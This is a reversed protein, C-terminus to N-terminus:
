RCGQSKSTTGNPRERLAWLVKETEARRKERIDIPLLPLIPDAFNQACARDHLYSSDNRRCRVRCFCVPLVM